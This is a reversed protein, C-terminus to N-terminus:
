YFRAEIDALLYLVDGPSIFGGGSSNPFIPRGQLNPVIEFSRWKAPRKPEGHLFNFNGNHAAANRCHRHFEWLPDQSHDPKTVEWSVILLSGVAMKNFAEIPNQYNSFIENALNVTEVKIGDRLRSGLRQVGIIPASQSSLVAKIHESYGERIRDCLMKEMDIASFGRNQHEDIFKKWEERLGRSLLDLLGHV